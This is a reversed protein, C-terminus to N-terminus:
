AYWLWGGSKLAKVMGRVDRRHIVGSHPNHRERGCRQIYDYVPNKHARYSMFMNCSRNLVVNAIELTNFHITVILASKGQAQLAQWHEAGKVVFRKQLRSYPMFWAMGMEFLAMGNTEFHQKLLQTREAVTKEPFCLALNRAAIDRRKKILYYSLRGLLRGLGMQMSYPLQAMVALGGMGLWTLWYRPHLLAVTFVPRHIM